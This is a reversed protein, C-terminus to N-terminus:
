HPQLRFYPGFSSGESFTMKIRTTGARRKAFQSPFRQRAAEPQRSRRSRPRRSEVHDRTRIARRSGTISSEFFAAHEILFGDGFL